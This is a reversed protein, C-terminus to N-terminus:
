INYKTIKVECVKTKKFFGKGSIKHIEADVPSGKKLRSAIEVANEPPIYGILTGDELKVKVVAETAVHEAVLTLRDGAKCKKIIDQRIVGDENPLKTGELILNFPRLADGKALHIV